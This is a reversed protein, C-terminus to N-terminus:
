AGMANRVRREEWLALAVHRPGRSGLDIALHGVAATRESVAALEGGVHLLVIKGTEMERVQRAPLLKSSLQDDLRLVITLTTGPLFTSWSGVLM